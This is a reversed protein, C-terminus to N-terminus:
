QSNNLFQSNNNLFCYFYNEFVLKWFDYKARLIFNTIKILRRKESAKFFSELESMFYHKRKFIRYSKYKRSLRSSFGPTIKISKDIVTKM